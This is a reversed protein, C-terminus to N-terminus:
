KFIAVRYIIFSVRQSNGTFARLGIWRFLNELSMLEGQQDKLFIFTLGKYDM